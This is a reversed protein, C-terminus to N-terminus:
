YVMDRDKIIVDENSNAQPEFYGIDKARFTTHGNGGGATGPEGPPGQQGPPGVPGPERNAPQAALTAAVTQAILTTLENRQEETFGRNLPQNTQGQHERGAM